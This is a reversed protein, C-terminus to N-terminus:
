KGDEYSGYRKFLERYDYSDKFSYKLIILPQHPALIIPQYRPHCPRDDVKIDFAYGAFCFRYFNRDGFKFKYPPPYALKADDEKFLSVIVSFDASNGPDENQIMQILKDNFKPEVSVEDFFENCTNSARWLTSLLYLKLKLYDFNKIISGEVDPDDLPISNEVVEATLFKYGYNDYPNFLQECIGCVLQDDYLGGPRKKPFERADKPFVKVDTPKGQAMERHFAEQYIHSRILGTEKKCFKCIM